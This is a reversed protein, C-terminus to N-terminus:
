QQAQTDVQPKVELRPLLHGATRTIALPVDLRSVFFGVIILVGSLWNM